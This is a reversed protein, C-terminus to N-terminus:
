LINFYFQESYYLKVHKTMNFDFCEIHLRLCQTYLKMCKDRIRNRKECSM